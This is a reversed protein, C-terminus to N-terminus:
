KTNQLRRKKSFLKSLTTFKIKLLQAWVIYYVFYLSLFVLIPVKFTHLFSLLGSDAGHWSSGELIRVIALPETQEQVSGAVSLDYPNWLKSPLLTIPETSRTVVSTLAMPGTSIMIHMHRSISLVTDYATTPWKNVHEVMLTWFKRASESTTSAMLANTYVSPTNASKVLFIQGPGLYKDVAKIPVIDLDSYLGGFDHLVFYRFLDVRQIPYSQREFLAWAQPRSLKIYAEIDADTWLLYLWDPHLAQWSAQSEAWHKPVDTTKWTQHIVKPMGNPLFVIKHAWLRALPECKILPCYRGAM